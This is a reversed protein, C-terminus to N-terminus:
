MLLNSKLQKPTNAVYIQIDNKEAEGVIDALSIIATLDISSV